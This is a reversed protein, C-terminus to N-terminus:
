KSKRFDEGWACMAKLLPVLTTGNKSLSYEVKPPVVPYVSRTILRDLELQRVTQTFMKDSIGPLRKKLEGSRLAGEILHYLVLSKWKGGILDLCLEINCSYSKGKYKFTSM